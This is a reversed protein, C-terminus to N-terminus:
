RATELGRSDEGTKSIYQLRRRALVRDRVVLFAGLRRTITLSV